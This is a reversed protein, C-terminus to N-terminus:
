NDFWFVVRTNEPEDEPQMHCDIFHKLVKVVRDAGLLKVKLLLEKLEKITNYSASHADTDWSKYEATVESCADAPFGREELSFPYEGRVGACLTSFLYYDRDRYFSDEYTVYPTKVRDEDPYGNDYFSWTDATEWPSKEDGRTEKYCHIDCGM